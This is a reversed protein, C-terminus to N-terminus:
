EGDDGPSPDPPCPKQAFTDRARDLIAQAEASLQDEDAPLLSEIFTLIGARAENSNQCLAFDRELGEQEIRHLAARADGSAAAAAWLALVGSLVGVVLVVRLLAPM